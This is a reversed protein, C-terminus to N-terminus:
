FFFWRMYNLGVRQKLLLSLFTSCRANIICLSCGIIIIVSPYLPHIVYSADYWMLKSYATWPHLVNTPCAYHILVNNTKYKLSNSHGMLFLVFDIIMENRMNLRWRKRSNFTLHQIKRARPKIGMGWFATPHTSQFTCDLSDISQQSRLRDHVM